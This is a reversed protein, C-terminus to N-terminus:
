KRFERWNGRKELLDLQGTSNLIWIERGCADILPFYKRQNSTFSYEDPMKIEIWKRHIGKIAYLDPFGKQYISGITVMVQWGDDELEEKILLQLKGEGQNPAQSPPEKYVKKKQHISYRADWNPLKFLKSYEDETFHRLVWVRKLIPFWYQQAATFSVYDFKVEVWREGFTPHLCYLDPFGSQYKGGHTVM